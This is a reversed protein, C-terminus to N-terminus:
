GKDFIDKMKDFFGSKEDNNPKFNPANRIKELMQKEEKSLSEPTYVYVTVYLDGTRYGQLEPM